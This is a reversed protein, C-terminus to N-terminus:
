NDSSALSLVNPAEMPRNVSSSSMSYMHISLIHWALSDTGGDRSMALAFLMGELREMGSDSKLADQCRNLRNLAHQPNCFITM